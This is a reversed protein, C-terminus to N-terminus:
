RPIKENAVREAKDSLGQFYTRLAKSTSEDSYSTGDAFTISQVMLVIITRMSGRLELKERMADSLPIIAGPSEEARTQGPMLLEDSIRGSSPGSGSLTGGTGISTWMVPTLYRIPKTGVNHLRYSIALEHGEDSMLLRTDEFRIPAAPQSAIVLLMNESPVAVYRRTDKQQSAQGSVRNVAFLVLLSLFLVRQQM